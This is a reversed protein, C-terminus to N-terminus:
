DMLGYLNAMSIGSLMAGAIGLFGQDTGIIHLGEIDSKGNRVKDISGYVTGDYHNTYKKITTPSFVDTFVSVFENPILEKTLKTASELVESKKEKYAQKDNSKLDNWKDFNAMYTVRICGLGDKQDRHYNDPLCFVASRGDFYDKAKEYLYEDSENYFVITPDFDNLFTKDKTVIISEMFSLRGVRPNSQILKKQNIMGYTEPLGASSFINDTELFEGNKLHVGKVKGTCEISTVPAMFRVEAGVEELKNLLLNIITRVGGAPRSFGELYLSKFMIVFQSFDMDNEWASGYILLPAIIMEKLLPETFYKDLVSRAPIYEANLDVENYDKIYDVFKIFNDMESPFVNKVESELLEFDNSFKLSASKFKILSYTQEQLELSDYPIRLQKLLKTLPKRREGKKAFNTLAHLGVDFNIFEKTKPIKRRYYSNLGGSINHKELIVVKKDFMALRIGAALGSMGAGIIIADYKQSM